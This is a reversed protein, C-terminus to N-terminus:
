RDSSLPLVSERPYRRVALHRRSHLLIVLTKRTVAVSRSRHLGQGLAGLQLALDTEVVKALPVTGFQKVALMCAAGHAQALHPETLSLEAARPAPAHRLEGAAQGDGM